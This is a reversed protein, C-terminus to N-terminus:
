DSCPCTQCLVAPTCTLYARALCCRSRVNPLDSRGVTRFTKSIRQLKLRVAVRRKLCFLLSVVLQGYSNLLDYFCPPVISLHFAFSVLIIYSAGVVVANLNGIWDRRPSTRVAQSILAACSLGAAVVILLIFLAHTTESISRLLLPSLKFMDPPLLSHDTSQDTQGIKTLVHQTDLHTYEVISSVFHPSDSEISRALRLVIGSRAPSLYVSLLSM